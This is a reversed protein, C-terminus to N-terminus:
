STLDIRDWVDLIWSFSSHLGIFVGDWCTIDALNRGEGVGDRRRLFSFSPLRQSLLFTSATTGSNPSMGYPTQSPLNSSNSLSSANSTPSAFTGGASSSKNHSMPYNTTTKTSSLRLFQVMQSFKEVIFSYRNILEFENKSLAVFAYRRLGGRAHQDHLSFSQAIVYGNEDDGFFLPNSMSESISSSVSYECSLCRVMLRRLISYKNQNRPYQSSIYVIDPNKTSLSFLRPPVDPQIFECPLVTSCTVCASKRSLPSQRASFVSGASHIRPSETAKSQRQNSDEPDSKFLSETSSLMPDESVESEANDESPASSKTAIPTDFHDGLESRRLKQTCFIISPGELECFHGLSFIVDM